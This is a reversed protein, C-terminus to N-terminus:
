QAAPLVRCEYSSAIDPNGGARLVAQAPYACILRERIPGSMAPVGPIPFPSGIGNPLDGSHGIMREPVRGTEVWAQIASAWSREPTDGTHPPGATGNPAPGPGGFCHQMGPIMFLRMSRRARAGSEQLAAEYFKISSAPSIAPDGWGHYIILKGGHDFYRRLNPTVDLDTSLAARLRAPDKDFDFSQVTAFPQQVLDKLLGRPLMEGTPGLIWGGWGLYVPVSAEAGSPPFGATV